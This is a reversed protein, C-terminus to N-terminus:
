DLAMDDIDLNDNGYNYVEVRLRPGGANSWFAYCYTWVLPQMTCDVCLAYRHLQDSRLLM